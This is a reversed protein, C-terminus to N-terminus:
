KEGQLQMIVTRKDSPNLTKIWNKFEQQNGFNPMPVYPLGSQAAQIAQPNLYDKWSGDFQTNPQQTQFNYVPRQNRYMNWLSRATNVDVGMNKAANLFQPLEQMQKARQILFDSTEQAAQPTMSRNPKLTNMYQMEYNTVRGGAILKAVLAAANQSANDTIQEPSMNGLVSTEWGTSPVKGLTSGKYTSNKYGNQFQKAFNSLQYGLTSDTNASNLADNWQTVGTTAQQSIQKQAALWQLPNYPMGFMAYNQFPSGGFAKPATAPQAGNMPIVQSPQGSIMPSFSSGNGQSIPPMGQNNGLGIENLFQNPIVGTRNALSAQYLRALIPDSFVQGQMQEERYPLLTNIQNANAGYLGAMARQEPIQGQYIGATQAQELPIQGQTIAQTQARTYPAQAQAQALQADVMQPALQAQPQMIKNLLQQHFLNAALQPSLYQNAIQGTIVNNMEAAGYAYPNAQEPTEPSIPIVPIAM